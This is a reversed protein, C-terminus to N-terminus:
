AASISFLPLYLSILVFAVFVAIFILIVPEVFGLLATSKFQVDEDYYDAVHNLMEPLAGTQEGVRIMEIALPPFHGTGELGDSLAKGERVHGCATTIAEAIASNGSSDRVTELASLLPTGGTLLTGLTRSLQAMSFMTLLSGLLPAHLKWQDIRARGSRTRTWLNALFITGVVALVISWFHSEAIDSVAILFQTPKPLERDLESYLQAFKPIVFKLIVGVMTVAL